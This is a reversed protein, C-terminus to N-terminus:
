LNPAIVVVDFWRKCIACDGPHLDPLREPFGTFTVHSPAERNIRFMAAIEDLETESDFLTPNGGADVWAHWPFHEVLAGVIDDGCYLDGNWKYAVHQTMTGESREVRTQQDVLLNGVLPCLEGRM